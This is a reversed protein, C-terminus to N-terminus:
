ITFLTVPILHMESPRGWINLTSSPTLVTVWHISLNNFMMVVSSAVVSGCSLLDAQRWLHREHEGSCGPGVQLPLLCGPEGHQQVKRHEAREGGGSVCVGNDRSWGSFQNFCCFFFAALVPSGGSAAAHRDGGGSQRRVARLRGCARVVRAAAGASPLSVPNFSRAVCSSVYPLM